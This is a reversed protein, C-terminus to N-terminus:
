STPATILATVLGATTQADALAATGAGEVRFFRKPRGRRENSPDGSTSSVYRKRELRNLTEYLAGISIDKGTVALVERRLEMGYAERGSFRILAALVLQEFPGLSRAM